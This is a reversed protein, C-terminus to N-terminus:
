RSARRESDAAKLEQKAAVMNFPHRYGHTLTTFASVGKVRLTPKGFERWDPDIWKRTYFVRSAHRPSPKHISLVTLVQSGMADAFCDVAEDYEGHGIYRSANEFRTGPRWTQREVTGCGDEDFVPENYIDRVFPYPVTIVAGPEISM